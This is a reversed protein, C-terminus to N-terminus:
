YPGAGAPQQIRYGHFGITLVGSAVRTVPDTQGAAPDNPDSIGEIGDFGSDIFPYNTNPLGYGSLNGFPPNNPHLPLVRFQLVEGREFVDLAGLEFPENIARTWFSSPVQENQRPFSSGANDFNIRFDAEMSRFPSANAPSVVHPAGTGPFAPAGPLVVQTHPQGDNLDWASHIPRYRGFSRGNFTSVEDPSEPDRVQFQYTSLFTAYRAVAVFPGEQSITITGQEIGTSNGPIRIDVVLDFPVRRGPVDWIRQIGPDGSARTVQIRQLAQGLDNANQSMRALDQRLGTIEQGHRAAMAQAERARRQAEAASQILQQMNM